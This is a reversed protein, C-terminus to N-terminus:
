DFIVSGDKNVWMHTIGLEKLKPTILGITKKIYDDDPHAIGVDADKNELKTEISKVIAKGLHDKIQGSDFFKRKKIKSNYNAKAGKVEIIFKKNNKISVIDYGRQHGLCFSEIEYNNKELYNILLKVTNDETLRVIDFKM